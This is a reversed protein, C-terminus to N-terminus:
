RYEPQSFGKRAHLYSPVPRWVQTNVHCSFNAFNPWRQLSPMKRGSVDVADRSFEGPPEVSQRDVRSTGTWFSARPCAARDCRWVVRCKVWSKWASKAGLCWCKNREAWNKFSWKVNKALSLPRAIQRPSASENTFHKNEYTMKEVATAKKENKCM